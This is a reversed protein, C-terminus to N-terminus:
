RRHTVGIAFSSDGFVPCAVAVLSGIPVLANM